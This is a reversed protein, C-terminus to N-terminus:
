RGAPPPQVLRIDANETLENLPLALATMLANRRSPPPQQVSM